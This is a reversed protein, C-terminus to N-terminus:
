RQEFTSDLHFIGIWATATEKTTEESRAHMLKPEETARLAMLESPLTAIRVDYMTVIPQIIHRRRYPSGSGGHLHDNPLYPNSMFIIATSGRNANHNKSNQGSAVGTVAAVIFQDLIMNM